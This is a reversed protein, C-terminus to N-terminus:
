PAVEFVTGCGLQCADTGGGYQTTGYLAGSKGFIVGATPREGNQSNASGALVSLGWEGDNTSTLPMLRFVSGYLTEGGGVFTTGYLAGTPDFVLPGMPDEEGNNLADFSYLITEIWSGDAGPSMRFMTGAEDPGGYTTGYLNGQKDVVLGATPLAGNQVNFRLLVNETWSGGPQMPPSLEFVTGCGVFGNESCEDPISLGGYSTTGFVNGASDLFLGGNPNAGDASDGSIGQFGYLVQETWAGGNRKPPSLEFVSGCNGGYYYDCDTGYGGGFQTAGYLNGQSDSVLDRYPFYGIESTPFSYLISETWAGGKQAPPSLEFVTGCGGHIQLIVCNGTGGYATTGYLNGESDIVLGGGPYDGDEYLVGKFVYLVTETWPDGKKAPPTLQFVTGCSAMPSCNESGGQNTAGYLNGAQDFVLKGIPVAGDTGGQFRYLVKGNSKGLAFSSSLLLVMALFFVNKM